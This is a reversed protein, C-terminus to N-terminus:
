KKKSRGTLWGKNIYSELESLNVKKDVSDKNIWRTGYQSNKEGLQNISNKLGIKLKSEEIHTKNNFTDYKFFGEEHLKKLNDSGQKSIKRLLDQDKLLKNAFAKGGAISRAKQNEESIYGGNGGKMLNMCMPDNILEENVIRIEGNILDERNEFFGLIEKRHADKGHKSVSNKIRKGGGMYGDEMDDTSHMGIYYKGNKLCTIKYLYHYKREKRAM